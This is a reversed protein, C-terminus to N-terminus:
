IDGDFEKLIKETKVESIRNIIKKAEHEDRLTKSLTISTGIVFLVGMGMYGKVWLDTPLFVIGLVLSIVSLFFSTKVYFIWSSSDRQIGTDTM